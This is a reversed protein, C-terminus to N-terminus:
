NLYWKGIRKEIVVIGGYLFIGLLTSVFLSSMMLDPELRKAALFLNKGLGNEAGNFEGVIAGIVSLTTAIKLGSMIGPLSLPFYLYRIRHITKANYIFMLEHMSRDILRFSNSFNIFIPFYCLLSAMMVKSKIGIGFLIIFFPALTILPIVQSFIMIPLIYSMLKENYFCLIMTVFSFVTGIFLGLVSEIFTLKAAVLLHDFNDM